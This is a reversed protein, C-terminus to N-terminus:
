GLTLADSMASYSMAGGWGGNGVAQFKGNWGTAPLWVEVRIDSDSSPKLTVAVRCFAVSNSFGQEAASPVTTRGSFAGAPVAQAMTISTHPLTLSSLSECSTAASLVAPQQSMPSNVLAVSLGFVALKGLTAM